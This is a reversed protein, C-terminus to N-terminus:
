KFRMSRWSNEITVSNITSPVQKKQISRGVSKQYVEKELYSSLEGYTVNGQTEKLKKLLYYTFLGHGMEHYPNATQEGQAAAFVVMKGKPVGPRAKIVVGRANSLMGEGRVSGSFCADLFVTIDRTPLEGLTAYLTNLAYGTNINNGTGDVPLLYSNGESTEDPIGHGAYYLIIRAEGEYAHAVDKIWSVGEQMHNFTANEKYYINDEPICLVNRCYEKFKRGDNLAYSVPAVKQYHENAIVIAFTRENNGQVMPIDIDVDSPGVPGKPKEPEELITMQSSEADQGAILIEKYVRQCKKSEAYISEDITLDHNPLVFEKLKPCLGFVRKGLMTVSEPIEIRKISTCFFAYDSISKVSAPIIVQDINQFGAFAARGISTITYRYGDIVVTEPIKLVKAKGKLLPFKRRKNWHNTRKDEDYIKYEHDRLEATGTMRNYSIDIEAGAIRVTEQAYGCITWVALLSFLVTKKM